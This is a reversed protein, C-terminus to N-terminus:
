EVGQLAVLKKICEVIAANRQAANVSDLIPLLGELDLKMARLKDLPRNRGVGTVRGAKDVIIDDLGADAWTVSAEALLDDANGLDAREVKEMKGGWEDPCNAAIVRRTERDVWLLM